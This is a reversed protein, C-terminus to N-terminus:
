KIVGLIMELIVVILPIVVILAIHLVEYSGFPWECMEDLQCQIDLMNKLSSANEKTPNRLVEEAKDRMRSSFLGLKEKKTKIMMQHISYQPLIFYACLLVAFSSFWLISQLTTLKLPTSMHFLGWVIYVSAACLTFKSYLVGKFQINKSLLVNVRLPLKGMKYVMLATAILVYLGAGMIYHALYYSIRVFIYPYYPQSAFGLHDLGLQHAIITISVGTLIMGKDNFIIAEQGEYWKLIEEEPLEIIDIFINKLFIIKEHAWILFITEQVILTSLIFFSLIYIFSREFFLTLLGSILFFIAEMFAGTWYYPLPILSIARELHMKHSIM